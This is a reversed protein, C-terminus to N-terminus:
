SAPGAPQELTRLSREIDSPQLSANACFTLLLPEDAHIYSLIGALFSPDQAQARIAAADLGTLNLFREMRTEDDALFALARIAVGRAADSDPAPAPRSM